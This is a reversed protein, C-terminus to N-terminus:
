GLAKELDIRTALMHPAVAGTVFLWAERKGANERPDIPVMVATTAGRASSGDDSFLLRVKGKGEGKGGKKKKEGASAPVYWVLSPLPARAAPDKFNRVFDVARGAGALVYGSYDKGDYGAYADAYFSPNDVVGDTQVRHSVQVRRTQPDPLSAFYVGGGTADSLLIQGSNSSGWGLGNNTPISDLAVTVNPPAGDDPLLVHVTNCWAGLRSSPVVRALEEAVRLPGELYRHDNTVLLERESLALLDNPTRILPHAVTRLHRAQAPARAADHAFVEIRSATKLQQNQPTWAANPVHNVAFIYVTTPDSPASYISLGHPVFPGPFGVLELKQSKLTKTDVVVFTGRAPDEPHELADAGPFWGSAKVLDGVCGLYLMGTPAHYHVDECAVTDEIVRNELGHVNVWSALPRTLGMVIAGQKLPAYLFAALAGLVTVTLYLFLAM